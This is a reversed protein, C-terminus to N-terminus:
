NGNRDRYLIGKQSLDDVSRSVYSESYGVNKAINSVTDPREIAEIVQFDISRMVHRM